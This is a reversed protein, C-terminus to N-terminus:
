RWISTGNGRPSVVAKTPTASRSGSGVTATYTQNELVRLCSCCVADSPPLARSAASQRRGRFSALCPLTPPSLPPAAPGSAPVGASFVPSAIRRCGCLVPRRRPRSAPSRRVLVGPRATCHKQPRVASRPPVRSARRGARCCRQCPSRDSPRHRPLSPLILGPLPFLFRLL